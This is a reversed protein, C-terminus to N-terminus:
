AEVNLTKAELLFNEIKVSMDSVELNKVIVNVAKIKKEVNEIKNISFNFQYFIESSKKSMLEKRAKTKEDIQKVESTETIVRPKNEDLIEKREEESTAKLLLQILQRDKLEKQKEIEDKLFVEEKEYALKSVVAAKEKETKCLGQYLIVAEESKAICNNSFTKEVTSPCPATVCRVGTDIVGCVPNYEKTCAQILPIEVDIPGEVDSPCAAFECNPGARGVQTVGDDCMKVDMTCFVKEPEVESFSLGFVGSSFIFFTATATILIKKINM